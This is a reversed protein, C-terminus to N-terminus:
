WRLGVTIPRFDTNNGSHSGHEFRFEGYLELNPTLKRTIGAGLNYGWQNIGESLFDKNLPISGASCTGWWNWFANCSSGLVAQSSDLKGSRRFFGPGFVIYGGWDKSVPLNIIPDLNFTYAHSSGGPAQALQLAAPRLPLNDWQFDFRFGFYKSYNRAVGAAIVGGGGRAFTTTSGYTLNGGGGVNFSWNKYEKPKSKRRSTSEEDSAEQGSTPNDPRQQAQAPTGSPQQACMTAAGGFLMLAIAPWAIGRRSATLSKRIM